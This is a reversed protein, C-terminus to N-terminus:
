DEFWKDVQEKHSKIWTAAAQEPTKGNQVDLMVSEMDKQSWNFKDLVKYAEPNDEKLGKRVITNIDEAKGMSNKPDELYKLDYKNFMWHPSWGTIVIDKHQKIAEGLAVTMAGSSSPVLNWDKLNDYDKLAKETAAMVGAGPEIGIISKDTQDKLDEISNAKMYSPVVLGVKAGKLNPGLLEVSKSFKKWQTEHTNPLWASVMGDAQGNAVTQWAVTNDLATKKVDFGHQEMAQSLVNISAVESDWNMYVLEVNKDAATKTLTVGSIGGIILVILAVLAGRKKWKKLQLNGQKETPAVNLKQTFRDIIIALIVLAIGNVFGKGIDASQVAALVGRGLGPAGIMSAIVVMSLALMITQNVGALITGKALPFELKFLKQRPTSGFSDAAEVLETSVQRIGLNTMRVTPPLAFIVSAFVGPVVGIGFFAVAPILYVFGPMTQMFDLIPQVIKAVLESKAMWIGLPIGIIISVLSSLLVLTVTNMLDTWLGQNAILVLGLFTFIPFAIKRGSVLVALFTVVIIMLWFPVATLGATVTDMIATGAKQIIDFGASLNSTIWDTATSVWDALPIKGIALEIM